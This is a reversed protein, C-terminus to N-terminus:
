PTKEEIPVGSRQALEALLQNVTEPQSDKLTEIALRVAEEPGVTTAWVHLRLVLRRAQQADLVYPWLREWSQLSQETPIRGREDPQMDALLALDAQRVEADALELALWFGVASFEGAPTLQESRYPDWFYRVDVQDTSQVWRGGGEAWRAETIGGPSTRWPSLALAPFFSQRPSSFRTHLWARALAAMAAREVLPRPAALAYSQYVRAVSPSHYFSSGDPVLLLDGSWVVESLYPLAVIHQPPPEGFAQWLKSAARACSEIQKAMLGGGMNGLYLAAGAVAETRSPPFVALAPPLAGEWAVADEHLSPLTADARGSSVRITVQNVPAQHPEGTWPWPYWDGDRLLYGVGAVLLNRVPQPAKYSRAYDHPVDYMWKQGYAMYPVYLRGQWALKLTFPEKPPAALEIVLGEGEQWVTLAQGSDDRASTLALGPNLRLVVKPEKIARAPTLALTSAGDLTNRAPDVTVELRQSQVQWLDQQIDFPAPYLASARTARLNAAYGAGLVAAVVAAWLLVPWRRRIARRRDVLPYLILALCLVALSLGVFWVAASVVSARYLGLGVSPSLKLHSFSFNLLSMEQFPTFADLPQRLFALWVGLALWLILLPLTRRVILGLLVALSLGMTMTVLALPLFYFWAVGAPYGPLFLGGLWWAAAQLGIGPLLGLWLGAFVGALHSLADLPTSWLVEGSRGLDRTVTPGILIPMLILLFPMASQGPLGEDGLVGAPSSVFLAAILFILAPLLLVGQVIWFSRRRWLQRIETRVIQCFCAM